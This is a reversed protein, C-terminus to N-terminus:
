PKLWKANGGNTASFETNFEFPQAVFDLGIRVTNCQGVM